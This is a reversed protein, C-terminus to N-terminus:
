DHMERTRSGPTRSGPYPPLLSGQHLPEINYSILGYSASIARTGIYVKTATFTTRFMPLRYCIYPLSSTMSMNESISPKFHTLSYAHWQSAPRPTDILLDSGVTQRDVPEGGSM